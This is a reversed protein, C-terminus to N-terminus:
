LILNLTHNFCLGGTNSLDILLDPLLGSVLTVCPLLLHDTLLEDKVESLELGKEIHYIFTGDSLAIFVRDIAKVIIHLFDQNIHGNRKPPLNIIVVKGQVFNTLRLSDRNTLVWYELILHEIPM